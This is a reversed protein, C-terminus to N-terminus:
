LPGRQIRRRRLTTRRFYCGRLLEESSCMLPSVRCLGLPRLDYWKTSIVHALWRPGTGNLPSVVTWSDHEGDYREVTQLYDEGDYGGIALLSSNILGLGIFSRPTSMEAAM